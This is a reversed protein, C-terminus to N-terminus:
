EKGEFVSRLLKVRFDSGKAYYSGLLSLRREPGVDTQDRLVEGDHSIFQTRLTDGLIRYLIQDGDQIGREALFDYWVPLNESIMEYTSEEVIGARVANKLNDRVGDFFQEQSADRQFDTRVFANRSNIGIQAISDALARSYDHGQALAEIQRADEPGLKVTLWLVDVAFITKEYLMRMTGYRGGLGATDMPISSKATAPTSKTEPQAQLLPTSTLSVILTVV